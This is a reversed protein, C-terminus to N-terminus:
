LPTLTPYNSRERSNKSGNEATCHSLTPIRQGCGSERNEVQQFLCQPNRLCGDGKCSLANKPRLNAEVLITNEQM